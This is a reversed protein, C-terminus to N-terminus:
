ESDSAARKRRAVCGLSLLGFGLLMVTGPEPASTVPVVPINVGATTGFSFFASAVNTATTVGTVNVMFTETGNVLPNHPGNGAILNNAATYVGRTLFESM